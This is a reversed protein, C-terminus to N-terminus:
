SETVEFLRFINGSFGLNQDNRFVKLNRANPMENKIRSISEFTGDNSANDIVILDIDNESLFNDSVLDLINESVVENRGFTPIGISVRSRYRNM